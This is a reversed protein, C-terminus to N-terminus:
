NSTKQSVVDLSLESIIDEDAELVECSKGEEAIFSVFRRTIVKDRERMGHQISVIFHDTGGFFEANADINEDIVVTRRQNAKLQKSIM